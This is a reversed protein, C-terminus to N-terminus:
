FNMVRMGKAPLPFQLTWVPLRSVQMRLFGPGLVYAELHRTNNTSYGSHYNGTACCCPSLIQPNRHTTPVMGLKAPHKQILASM